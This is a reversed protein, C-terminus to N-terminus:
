GTGGLAVATDQFTFLAVQAGVKPAPGLYLVENLPQGDGPDVSCVGTVTDVTTVTGIWGHVLERPLNAAPSTM